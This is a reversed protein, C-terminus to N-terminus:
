AVNIPLLIAIAKHFKFQCLFIDFLPLMAAFKLIAAMINHFFSM